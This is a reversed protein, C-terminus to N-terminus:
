TEKTWKQGDDFLPLYGEELMESDTKEKESDRVVNNKKSWLKEPRALQHVKYKSFNVVKDLAEEWTEWDWVCLYSYGNEIAVDRRRIHYDERKGHSNKDFISFYCNHTITPNIDILIKEEEVVLDYFFRGISKEFESQIGQELLLSHFTKNYESITKRSELDAKERVEPILLPSEVGYRELCTKKFQERNNWDRGESVLNSITELFKDRNAYNERGYTKIITEVAKSRNTATGYKKRGSEVQKKRASPNSFNSTAGYRELCTQRNKDKVSQAQSSVPVGYRELCTQRMKEPNGDVGYKEIKTQKAKKRLEPNNFSSTSGYRELMTQKTKASTYKYRCEKSCFIKNRNERVSDEIEKGCVCCIAPHKDYCYKRRKNKALFKKGCIKCIKETM